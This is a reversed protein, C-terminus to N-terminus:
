VKSKFSFHLQLLLRAAAWNARRPPFSVWSRLTAAHGGMRWPRGHVTGTGPIKIEETPPFCKQKITGVDNNINDKMEVNEFVQMLFFPLM